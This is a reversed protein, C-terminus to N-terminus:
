AKGQQQAAMQKRLMNQYAMRRADEQRAAQQRRLERLQRCKPVPCAATTCGKAHLNLLAWIKKCMQCGGTVKTPCDHSHRFM